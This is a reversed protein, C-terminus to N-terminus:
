HAEYIIQEQCLYFTSVSPGSFKYDQLIFQMQASFYPTLNLIFLCIIEPLNHRCGKPIEFHFYPIVM